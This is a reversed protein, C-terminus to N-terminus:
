RVGESRKAVELRKRWLHFKEVDGGKDPHHRQLAKRCEDVTYGYDIGDLADRYM